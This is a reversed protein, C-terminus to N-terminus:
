FTPLMIHAPPLIVRAYKLTLINVAHSDSITLAGNYRAQPREDDRGRIGAVGDGDLIGWQGNAQRRYVDYAGSAYLAGCGHTEGM